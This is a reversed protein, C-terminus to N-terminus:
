KLSSTVLGRAGFEEVCFIRGFWGRDDEHRHPHVVFAGEVDTSHFEV